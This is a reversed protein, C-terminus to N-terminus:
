RDSYEVYPLSLVAFFREDDQHTILSAQAGFALRLRERINVLAMGHGQSGTKQSGTKRPALPNSITIVVNDKESRGYVRIEGGDPRPQLGHSVANELLPQLTLPLISAAKPLEEVRWDVRVRSGLRRRELQLYKEALDLEESLSILRDARRMSGRFLDALDETAHEAGAPDDAILSAITNLSNFLFHPRIRAQLAQVRAESQALVQAQWQSRVYLYRFLALCVLAVALVSQLVFLGFAKRGPGMGVVTGVIGASYSFLLTTVVVIVWATIWATRAYFRQLWARSICLATAGVLALALAYLSTTGLWVLSLAPLRGLAILLVSIEAVALVALLLRWRCFSPPYVGQPFVTDLNDVDGAM